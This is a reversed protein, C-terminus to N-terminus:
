VTIDIFKVLPNYDFLQKKIESLYPGAHLVVSIEKHKQIETMPYNLLHTGYM